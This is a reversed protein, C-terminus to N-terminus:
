QPLHTVARHEPEGTWGAPIRHATRIAEPSMVGISISLSDQVCKVLHWFRRPIYLWDGPLLRATLLQSTEAKILSFDPVDGLQTHRAVTNARFYYDKIGLTQAIFVDEFDYHWGYSHTGAPTAYLQVHIEGPLVKAFSRALEALAPDHLESARVVTSVGLRMLRQVDREGRPVPASVLRGGSVTMVDVPQESALVRDLTEWTLLPVEPKAAGPAAYPSRAFSEDLFRQLEDPVLWDGFM